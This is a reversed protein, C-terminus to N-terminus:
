LSRTKFECRPRKLTTPNCTMFIQVALIVSEYVNHLVEMLARSFFHGCCSTINM